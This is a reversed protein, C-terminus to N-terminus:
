YKQIVNLFNNHKKYVKFTHMKDLAVNGIFYEIAKDEDEDVNNQLFFSLSKVLFTDGIQNFINSNQSNFRGAGGGNFTSELHEFISSIHTGM